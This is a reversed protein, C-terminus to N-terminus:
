KHSGELENIRDRIKGMLAIATFPVKPDVRHLDNLLMEQHSPLLYDSHTIKIQLCKQMQTIKVEWM